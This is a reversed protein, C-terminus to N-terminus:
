MNYHNKFYRRTCAFYAAVSLVCVALGALYPSCGQLLMYSGAWVGLVLGTEWLLRYTHYGTGRECHQPLSIMMQLFLGVSVGMGLGILGGGLVDRLPLSLGGHLLWLGAAMLLQGALIRVRGDAPCKIARRLPVWLLFGAGIGTFVRIDSVSVVLMGLVFPVTMMNLGPPLARPLLFRDSSCLPLDLPARFCVRVMSILAASALLLVASLYFLNEDSMLTDGRIGAVLGALMGVISSWAFARNADDRHHTPTVDIALTSGTAMLAVGCLGGQLIRLAVVQWGAVVHPYALSLLAVLVISRTCVHKRSFTDVLYSNFVGFLFLSLGFAVVTGASQLQTFRWADTMWRYLSPFLLYIAAHFLVNAALLLFFNRNWLM